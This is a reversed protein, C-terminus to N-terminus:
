HKMATTTQRVTRPGGAHKENNLVFKIANNVIDEDTILIKM